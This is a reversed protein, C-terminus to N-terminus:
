KEESVDGSSARYRMNLELPANIGRTKMAFDLMEEGINIGWPSGQRTGGHLVFGRRGQDNTDADPQMWIRYDGWFAYGGPWDGRGWWGKLKMMMNQDAYRQMSGTMLFWNGEPIRAGDEYAKFQSNWNYYPVYLNALSLVTVFAAVIFSRVPNRRLFYVCVMGAALFLLYILNFWLFFRPSSYLIGWQPYGWYFFRDLFYETILSDSLVAIYLLNWLGLVATTCLFIKKAM